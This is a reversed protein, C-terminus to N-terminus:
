QTIYFVSVLYLEHTQPVTLLYNGAQANLPEDPFVWQSDNNKSDGESYIMRFELNTQTIVDIPTTDYYSKIWVDKPNLVVADDNIQITKSATSDNIIAIIRKNGLPFDYSFHPTTPLNAIFEAKTICENTSDISFGEANAEAKTILEFSKRRTVTTTPYSVYQKYQSPVRDYINTWTQMEVAAKPEIQITKDEM